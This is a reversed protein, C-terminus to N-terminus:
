HQQRFLHPFASLQTMLQDSFCGQPALTVIHINCKIAEIRLTQHFFYWIKLVLLYGSVHSFLGGQASSIWSPSDLTHVQDMAGPGKPHM